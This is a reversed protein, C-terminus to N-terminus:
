LEVFSIINFNDPDTKILQDVNEKVGAKISDKLVASPAKGKVVGAKASDELVASPAKIGKFGRRKAIDGLIHTLQYAEQESVEKAATKTIKKGAQETAKRSARRTIDSITLSKRQGMTFAKLTKPDTLDLVNNLTIEKSEIRYMKQVQKGTMQYHVQLERIAIERRSATHLAKTGPAAYRANSELTKKPMKFAPTRTTGPVGRWVKTEVNVGRAKYIDKTYWKTYTRGLKILEEKTFAPSAARGAAKASQKGAWLLERALYERAAPPVKVGSQKLQKLTYTYNELGSKNVTRLAQTVSEVNPPKKFVRSIFHMASELETKTKLGITQFTGIVKKIKWDIFRLGPQLYMKGKKIVRAQIKGLVRLSTKLPATVFGPGVVGFTASSIAIGLVSLSREFGTLSRGTILHRGTLAEYVDKGFGVFPTIGLAIDSLAEGADLALAAGGPNGEGAEEDAVELAFLGLERAVYGQKHVPNSEYLQSYVREGRELFEGELYQFEYHPETPATFEEDELIALERRSYKAKIINKAVETINEEHLEFARSHLIPNVDMDKTSEVTDMIDASLIDMNKPFEKRLDKFLYRKALYEATSYLTNEMDRMSKIDTSSKKYTSNALSFPRDRFASYERVGEQVIGEVQEAWTVDEEPLHAFLNDLKQVSWNTIIKIHFLIVEAAIADEIINSLIRASQDISKGPLLSSLKEQLHKRVAPYIDKSRRHLDRFWDPNTQKFYFLNQRIKKIFERTFKVEAQRMVKQFRNQRYIRMQRAYIEAERQFQRMRQENRRMWDSLSENIGGGPLPSAPGGQGGSGGGSGGSGGTDEDGDSSDGANTTDEVWVLSSGDQLPMSSSTKGERNGEINKDGCPQIEESFEMRSKGDEDQRFIFGACGMDINIRELNQDGESSVVPSFLLIFLLIKYVLIKQFIGSPSFLFFVAKKVPILM